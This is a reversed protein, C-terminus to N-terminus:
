LVLGGDVMFMKVSILFITVLFYCLFLVRAYFFCVPTSVVCQHLFLVSTYFVPITKQNKVLYVLDLNLDHRLMYSVLTECLMRGAFQMMLYFLVKREHNSALPCLYPAKGLSPLM